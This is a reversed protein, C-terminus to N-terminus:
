IVKGSNVSARVNEVFSDFIRKSVGDNCYCSEPHWQVGLLFPHNKCHFAEIYGDHSIADAELEAALRKVAQHHFSNVTIEGNGLIKELLTGDLIKVSHTRTNRPESQIHGDVHRHLNGGLFVNIIQMGRCIGLIPKRTEFFVNFLRMEFEDRITCINKIEGEDAEGYYKPAIDGGGCFILGDFTNAIQKLTSEDTSPYLISPIGGSDTVAMLYKENISVIGDQAVTASLGINVM